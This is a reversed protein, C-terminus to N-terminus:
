RRGGRTPTSSPTREGSTMSKPTGINEIGEFGPAVLIKFKASGPKVRDSSSDPVQQRESLPSGPLEPLPPVPKDRPSPTKPNVKAKGKSRDSAPNLEIQGRAVERITPTIPPPGAATRTPVAPYRVGAVRTRSPPSGLIPSLNSRPMPPPHEDDSDGDEFSTYSTASLYTAPRKSSAKSRGSPKGRIAQGAGRVTSAGAASTVPCPLLRSFEDPQEDPVSATPRKAPVPKRPVQMPEEWQGYRVAMQASGPTPAPAAAQARQARLSQYQQSPDPHASYLAELFPDSPVHRVTPQVLHLNAQSTDMTGRGRPAPRMTSGLPAGGFDVTQTGPVDTPSAHTTHLSLRLPPPFLSYIPKDPLLRSVTEYSTASVPTIPSPDYPTQQVPGPAVAVGIDEPKTSRRFFSWRDNSQPSAFTPETRQSDYTEPGHIGQEVDQAAPALASSPTRPTNYLIKNGFSAESARKKKERRGRLCFILALLGFVVGAAAISGVTVGAIEPKTLAPRSAPAAVATATAASQTNTTPLSTVSDFSSTAPDLATPAAFSESTPSPIESTTSPPPPPPRTDTIISAPLRGDRTASPSVSPLSPELETAEDSMTSAPPGSYAVTTVIVQTATLTPNTMPKSQPVTHCVEYVRTAERIATRNNACEAAALCRLAGEGLTLGTRSDRTCLCSIDSPSECTSSPFSDALFSRLCGHACTPVIASLYPSLSDFPIPGAWIPLPCLFAVLLFTYIAMPM